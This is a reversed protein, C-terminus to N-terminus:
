VSRPNWEMNSYEKGSIPHLEDGGTSMIDLM